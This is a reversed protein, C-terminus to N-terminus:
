RHKDKQSTKQYKSNDKFDHRSEKDSLIIKIYLSARWNKKLQAERM